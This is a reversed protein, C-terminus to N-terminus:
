KKYDLIRGSLTNPLSGYIMLKKGQNNSKISELISKKEDNILNAADKDLDAILNILFDLESKMDSSVSSIADKETNEELSFLQDIVAQRKSLIEPLLEWQDSISSLLEESLTKFQKLLTKKLMFYEEPTKIGM